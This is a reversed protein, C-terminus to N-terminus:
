FKCVVYHISIYFCTCLCVTLVKFSVSNRGYIRERIERRRETGREAMKNEGINEKKNEEEEEEEGGGNERRKDQGTKKFHPSVEFGKLSMEVESSTFVTETEREELFHLM